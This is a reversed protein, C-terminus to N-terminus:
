MLGVLRSRCVAPRYAMKAQSALPRARILTRRRQGAPGLQVRTGERAYCRASTRLASSSGNLEIVSTKATRRLALPSITPPHTRKM